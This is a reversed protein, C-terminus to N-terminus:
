VFKGTEWYVNSNHWGPLRPGTLKLVTNIRIKEIDAVISFVQFTWVRFAMIVRLLDVISVSSSYVLALWLETECKVHEILPHMKWLEELRTKGPHPHFYLSCDVYVTFLLKENRQRLKLTFWLLREGQECKFWRVQHNRPTGQRLGGMPCMTGSQTAWCQVTPGVSPSFVCLLVGCHARETQRKVNKFAM